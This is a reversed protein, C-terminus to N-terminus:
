LEMWFNEIFNSKVQSKKAWHQNLTNLFSLLSKKLFGCNELHVMILYTNYTHDSLIVYTISKYLKYKFVNEM